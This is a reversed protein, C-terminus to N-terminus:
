RKWFEGNDGPLSESQLRRGLIVRRESSWGLLKLRAEALQLVGQSAEGQWDECRLAAIARKVNGTLKLKFLFNPRDDSEEHWAMIRESAFGIDGRNLWPSQGMSQLCEQM